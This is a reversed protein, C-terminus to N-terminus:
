SIANQIYSTLITNANAMGDDLAENKKIFGKNGKSNKRYDTGGVFFRAKWDGTNEKHGLAHIKVHGDRLKGVMIGEAMRYYDPTAYKYLTIDKKFQDRMEDRLRFASALVARDISRLMEETADSLDRTDYIVRKTKPM